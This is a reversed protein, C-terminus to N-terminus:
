ISLNAKNELKIFILIINKPSSSMICKNEACHLVRSYHIYLYTGKSYSRKIYTLYQGLFIYFAM